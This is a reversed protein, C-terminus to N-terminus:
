VRHKKARSYRYKRTTGMERSLNGIQENIIVMNEEVTNLIIIITLRFDKDWNGVGSNNQFWDRNCQRKQFLTSRINQNIQIYLLTKTNDSCKSSNMTFILEVPNGSSYPIIKRDPLCSMQVWVGFESSWLPHCCCDKNLEKFGLWLAQCRGNVCYNM